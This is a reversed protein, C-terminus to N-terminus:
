GMSAAPGWWWSTPKSAQPCKGLSGGWLWWGGGAKRPHQTGLKPVGHLGLNRSTPM